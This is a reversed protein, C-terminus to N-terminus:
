YTLVTYSVDLYISDGSTVFHSLSSDFNNSWLYLRQDLTDSELIAALYNTIPLSYQTGNLVAPSAQPPTGQDSVVGRYGAFGGRGDPVPIRQLRGLSDPLFDYIFLAPPANLTDQADSLGVNFDVRNLRISQQETTQSRVFALLSDFGIRPVVGAGSQLYLNGDDPIVQNELGNLGALATGAYDGTVSSFYRRVVFTHEKIEGQANTFNMILRVRIPDFSSVFSNATTPVLALGPLFERFKTGDLVTSDKAKALDFIVRGLADDLRFRLTDLGGTRKASTTVTGLLSSAYASNDSNYYIFAPDNSLSDVLQHVELSQQSAQTAGYSREYLLELELSQYTATDGVTARPGAMFDIFTTAEAIGLETVQRGALLRKRSAPDSLFTASTNVSDQRAISFPVPIRTRQIRLSQQSPDAPLSLFNDNECALLFPVM